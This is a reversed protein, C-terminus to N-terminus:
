AFAEAVDVDQRDAESVEFLEQSTFGFQKAMLVYPFQAIRTNYRTTAENYFERRDSLQNEIDSIRKQFQLMNGQSRLDPYAEVRAEFAAMAGRVMEDAAAQEGPTEAREAQERAETLKTLVEREHDMYQSAADILKTLEDQRQKLLVDINRKSQDVRQRLSVLTNYTSIGYGVFLVLVVGAVFVGVLVLTLSM